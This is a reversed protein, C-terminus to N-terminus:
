KFNGAPNFSIHTQHSILIHIADILHSHVKKQTAMTIIHSNFILGDYRHISIHPAQPTWSRAIFYQSFSKTHCKRFGSSNMIYSPTYYKAVSPKLIIRHLQYHLLLSPNFEEEREYEYEKKKYFFFRDIWFRSFQIKYYFHADRELM